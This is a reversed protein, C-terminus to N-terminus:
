CSQGFSVLLINLDTSDTDGDNDVDGTCSATCGFDTLLINLDTSDIDGDNDLDAPCSPPNCDAQECTVGQGLFTGGLEACYLSTTFTCSHDALCCAGNEATPTCTLTGVWQASTCDVDSFFQPSLFLRYTGPDLTAALDVQQCGAGIDGDYIIPNDCNTSLLFTQFLFTAEVSWVVDCRATLTFQYWDTDRSQGGSTNLFTGSGACVSQGCALVPFVPPDASCGGNTADIYGFACVPENELVAGPPCSVTCLSSCLAPNPCPDGESVHLVFNGMNEQFGTVLIYYTRGDESCWTAESATACQSPGDDNAAICVLDFPCSGCYVHLKTDFDTGVDCTSATLTGGTGVVTYWVGPSTIPLGCEPASSDDTAFFTYGATSSPVAIAQAFECEDNAPPDLQPCDVLPDSCTTGDGYYIGGTIACTGEALVQCDGGPLCCAGIDTVPCPCTVELRYPARSAHDWAMVQIYYNQGASTNFCVRSLRGTTGCDADDSCAVQLLGTCSTGQYVAIISDKALPSFSEANCSSILVSNGNGAFRYWVSGVGGNNNCTPIPEALESTANRTDAVPTSGCTITIADDCDDNVPPNCTSVGCTTTDGQYVGGQGLCAQQGAVQVCSGNPLCCAGGPCPSSCVLQAQYELGCAFPPGAFDPAVFFWWTGPGLCVSVSVQQEPLGIAFPNVSQALNCNPVGGTCCILGIVVRFEATVTWTIHTQSLLTIQYWDTDRDTGNWAATGCIPVNCPINLFHPVPSGCGGNYFDFPLGCNPESESVSGPVCTVRPGGDPHEDRFDLPPGAYRPSFTVGGDPTRDFSGPQVSASTEPATPQPTTGEDPTALLAPAVAGAIGVLCVGFWIFRHDFARKM